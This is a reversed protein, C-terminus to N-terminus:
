PCRPDCRASRVERRQWACGAESPGAEIVLESMELLHRSLGAGHGGTGEIAWARLMPHNNAFEM